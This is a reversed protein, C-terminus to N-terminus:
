GFLTAVVGLVCFADLTKQGDALATNPQDLTKPGDALDTNPQISSYVCALYALRCVTLWATLIIRVYAEM